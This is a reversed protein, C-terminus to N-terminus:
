EDDDKKAAKAPAPKKPLEVSMTTKGHQKLMDPSPIQMAKPGPMEDGHKLMPPTKTAVKAKDTFRMSLETADVSDLGHRMFTSVNESYVSDSTGHIGGLRKFMELTFKEPSTESAKGQNPSEDMMDDMREQDM